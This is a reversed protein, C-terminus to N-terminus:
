YAYSLLMITGIYLVWSYGALKRYNSFGILLM